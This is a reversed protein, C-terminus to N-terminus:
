PPGSPAAPLSRVYAAVATMQDHTLRNKFSTMASGEGAGNELIAVISDASFGGVVTSDSLDPIRAFARRAFDPPKGTAGHCVLCYDKYLAGGDPAQGWVPAAGLLALLVSIVPIHVGTWAIPRNPRESM